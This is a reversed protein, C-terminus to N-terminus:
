LKLNLDVSEGVEGNCNNNVTTAARDNQAKALPFFSYFAQQPNPVSPGAQYITDDANNGQYHFSEFDPIERNHFALYSPPLNLKPSPCTWSTSPPALTLFDGNVSGNEKISSRSNSESISTSCSPGERFNTKIAPNFNFASRNGCSTAEDARIPPAVFTPFKISPVPPNELSFPYPRKMGVMKEEDPWMPTYNSYYSQNSPPEIQFNLVSSSNATSLNVMSPPPPPPPPPPPQQHHFQQTRTPFNSLPWIPNNNSSEFPLNMTSRFALGPDLGPNCSVKQDLINFECPNWLNPVHNGNGGGNINNNNNNNGVGFPFTGSSIMPKRGDVGSHAPPILQPRFISNPSPLDLSPFPISSPPQYFHRIPVSSTCSHSSSKTPLSLSSPPTTSLIAAAAAKKQQEELRIKELQAVGLGRQPVKKQKTKKSSSRSSIINNSGLGIIETSTDQTQEEEHAM